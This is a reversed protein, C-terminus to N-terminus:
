EPSSGMDLLMGVIKLSSPESSAFHRPLWDLCCCGIHDFSTEALLSPGLGPPAGGCLQAGEVAV